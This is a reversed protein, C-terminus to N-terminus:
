NDTPHPLEAIAAALDAGAAKAAALYEPHKLVEGKHDLNRYLLAPGLKADLVDFFYKVTLLAGDFLRKGSTAGVSIFLAKRKEPWDNFPTQQRWYKNVWLSQCRDMFIKTHASVTYFFIPSALMIGRAQKLHTLVTPFEDKIACEGTKICQYIELCPSIKLDRLHFEVVEAGSERAGAVAQALLLATNGGRRPSGYLAVIDTM